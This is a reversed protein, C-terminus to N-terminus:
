GRGYRAYMLVKVNIYADRTVKFAPVRYVQCDSDYEVEVDGYQAVYENLELQSEITYYADTTTEIRVGKTVNIESAKM